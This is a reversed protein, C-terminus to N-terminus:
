WRVQPQSNPYSLEDESLTVLSGLCSARTHVLRSNYSACLYSEEWREGKLAKTESHEQSCIM